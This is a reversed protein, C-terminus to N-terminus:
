LLYALIEDLAPLEHLCDKTHDTQIPEGRISRSLVIASKAIILQFSKAKIRRSNVHCKILTLIHMYICVM